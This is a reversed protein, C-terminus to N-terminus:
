RRPGARPRCGRRARLDARAECRARARLSSPSSSGPARPPARPPARLSGARSRWPAACTASSGPRPGRRQEGVAAVAVERADAALAGLVARRGRARQALQMPTRPQGAAVLHVADTTRADHALAGRGSSRRRRGTAVVGVALGGRQAPTPTITSLASQRGTASPQSPHPPSPGRPSAPGRRRAHELLPHLAIRSSLPLATLDDRDDSGACAGAAVLDAGLHVLGEGAGVRVSRLMSRRAIARSRSSAAPRPRPARRRRGARDAVLAEEGVAAFAGARAALRPHCPQASRRGAPASGHRAGVQLADGRLEGRASAARRAPPAVPRTSIRAAVLYTAQPSRGSARRPRRAREHPLVAGLVECSFTAAWPSSNSHSKM